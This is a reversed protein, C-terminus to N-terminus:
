VYFGEQKREGSETKNNEEEPQDERCWMKLSSCPNWWTKMRFFFPSVKVHLEDTQGCQPLM